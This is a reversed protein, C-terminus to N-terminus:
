ETGSNVVTGGAVEDPGGAPFANALAAAFMRGRAANGEANYHVDDGDLFWDMHDAVESAWDWVVANPYDKMTNELIENFKQMNADAYYGDDIRTKATSWMVRQGDLQDMMMRVRTEEDYNAGAAVNAADNVGTGIVWCTGEPQDYTLLEAVSDVASPYDEFGETTNRGGFVSTEVEPAGHEIYQNEGIDAPDPLMDPNFIGLSTSDGVHIVKTCAMQSIGNAAAEAAESEDATVPGDNEVEM